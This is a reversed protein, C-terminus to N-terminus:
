LTRQVSLHPSGVLIYSLCVFNDWNVILRAINVRSLSNGPPGRNRSTVVLKEYEVKWKARYSISFNTSPSTNSSHFVSTFCHSDSNIIAMVWLDCRQAAPWITIHQMINEECLRDGWWWGRGGGWNAVITKVALVIENGMMHRGEERGPPWSECWWDSPCWTLSHPWCTIRM